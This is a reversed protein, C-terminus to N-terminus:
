GEDSRLKGGKDGLNDTHHVVEVTHPFDDADATVVREDRRGKGDGGGM